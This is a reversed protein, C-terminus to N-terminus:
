TGIVTSTEDTSEKWASPCDRYKKFWETDKLKLNNNSCQVNIAGNSCTFVINGNMSTFGRNRWRNTSSNWELEPNDLSIIGMTTVYVNDTYPAIRDITEQYPFTNALNQTYQVNGACCCVMVYKPKIVNLLNANSSTNSGHHGAKYLTVEPLNNKEVLSTEGGSELDGTFLYNNTGQRILCCVSYNNDSSAYTNEYYKQYLIELQVDGDPTLNYVRNAGDTNKYCQLATYHKAGNEEAQTRKELYEAYLTPKGSSDTMGYNTLNFDIITDCQYYDFIGQSGSPGVFGAIHDEHAHTAIVYELKGDMVYNDLYNILTPTSSKNSGADILIDVDGVKIYVSDGTQNNGLEMFHISVNSNSIVTPEIVTVTLACSRVVGNETYSITLSKTGATTSSFGGVNFNSVAKTSDDSYKATVVIDSNDLAGGKEIQSGNYVASISILQPIEPEPEEVTIYFETMTTVSNETYSVTVQKRGATSFDYSLDFDTVVQPDGSDYIVTIVVDDKNLTDGVKVTTVNCVASIAIPILPEPTVPKPPDPKDPSQKETVTVTFFTTQTTNNFTYSVEVNREGAQSFDYSLSFDTVVGSTNDSYYAIVTVSQKDLTDGVEAKTVSSSASVRVLKVEQCACLATVCVTLILTLLAIIAIKSLVTKGSFLKNM